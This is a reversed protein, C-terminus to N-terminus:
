SFSPQQLLSHLPTPPTARQLDVSLHDTYDERTDISGNTLYWSSANEIEDDSHSIISSACSGVFCFFRFYVSSCSVIFKSTQNKALKAKDMHSRNSVMMSYIDNTM